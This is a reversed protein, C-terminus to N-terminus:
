EPATRRGGGRASSIYMGSVKPRPPLSRTMTSHSSSYTRPDPHVLSASSASSTGNASRVYSGSTDASTAATQHQEFHPATYWLSKGRQGFSPASTTSDM